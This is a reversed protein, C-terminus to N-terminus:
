LCIYLIKNDKLTLCCVSFNPVCFLPLFLFSNAKTGEMASNILPMTLTSACWNPRVELVKTHSFTSPLRKFATGQDIKTENKATRIWENCKNCNPKFRLPIHCTRGEKNHKIWNHQMSHDQHYIEINLITNQQQWIISFSMSIGECGKFWKFNICFKTDVWNCLNFISIWIHYVM